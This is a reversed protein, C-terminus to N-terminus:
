EFTDGVNAATAGALQSYIAVFIASFLMAVLAGVIGNLFGLVSPAGIASTILGMIMFAVLAVVFYAIFLVLYFLFLRGQAPGTLAWSRGLVTFPNMTNELAIVPTIMSLRTMVWLLAGIIAIVIVFTLAAALGTSASGVAALLLGMVLGLVLAIVFYAVIVIVLIALLPLLAKVGRGIAEGVSLRSNDGLLAVMAVYGIFSTVIVLLYFGFFSPGLDAMVAEMQTPDMNPSMLTGMVDPLAIFMLLSPVFFFVGGLIALLSFNAGLKAIAESWARGMDFNM